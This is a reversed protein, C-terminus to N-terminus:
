RDQLRANRPLAPAKASVNGTHRWWSTCACVVSGKLRKNQKKVGLPVQIAFSFGTDVLAGFVFRVGANTCAILADVLGNMAAFFGEGFRTKLLLGGLGLQLAIGWTM